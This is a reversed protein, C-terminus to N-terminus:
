LNEYRKDLAKRVKEFYEDVTMSDNRLAKKPSSMTGVYAVSPECAMTVSNDNDYKNIAM